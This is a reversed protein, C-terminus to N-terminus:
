LLMSPRSRDLLAHILGLPNPRPGAKDPGVSGSLSSRGRGNERRQRGGGSSVSHLLPSSTAQGGGMASIDSTDARAEKVGMSLLSLAHKPTMYLDEDGSRRVMALYQTLGKDLLAALLIKSLRRDRDRGIGRRELHETVVSVVSSVMSYQTHAAVKDSGNGGRPSGPGVGKGRNSLQLSVHVASPSGFLSDSRCSSTPSNAASPSGFLHSDLISSIKTLERIGGARVPPSHGFPPSESIPSLMPNARDKSSAQNNLVGLYVTKLCSASVCALCGCGGMRPPSAGGRGGQRQGGTGNLCAPAMCVMGSLLSIYSACAHVAVEKVEDRLLTDLAGVCAAYTRSLMSVEGAAGSQTDRDRDRDRPRHTQVLRRGCEEAVRLCLYPTMQRIRMEADAVLKELCTGYMRGVGRRDGDRDRDRDAGYVSSHSHGAGLLSLTDSPAYPILSAFLVLHRVRGEASEEHSHVLSLVRQLCQALGGSVRPPRSLGRVRQRGVARLIRGLVWGITLAGARDTHSTANVGIECLLDGDATSLSPCPSPSSPSAGKAVGKPVSVSVADAISSLCLVFVASYEPKSSLNLLATGIQPDALVGDALFEHVRCIGAAVRGERSDPAGLPHGQGGIDVSGSHSRGNPPSRYSSGRSTSLAHESPRSHPSLSFLTRLPELVSTVPVTLRDIESESHRSENVCKESNVDGDPGGGDLWVAEEAFPFM